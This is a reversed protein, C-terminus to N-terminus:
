CIETYDVFRSLHEGIMILRYNSEFAFRSRLRDM